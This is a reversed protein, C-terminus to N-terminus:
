CARSHIRAPDASIPTLLPDVERASFIIVRAYARAEDSLEGWELLGINQKRM